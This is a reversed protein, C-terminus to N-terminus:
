SKDIISKNNLSPSFLLPVKNFSYIYPMVFIIIEDSFVEKNAYTSCFTFVPM